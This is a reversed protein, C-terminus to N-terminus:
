ISFWTVSSAALHSCTRFFMM